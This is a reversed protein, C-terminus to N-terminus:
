LQKKAAVIFNIVIKDAHDGILLPRKDLIIWKQENMYIMNEM